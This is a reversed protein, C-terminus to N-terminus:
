QNRMKRVTESVLGSFVLCWVIFAVWWFVIAMWAVAPQEFIHALRESAVSYMGLPFVAGWYHPNYDLPIRNKVHRWYGLTLLMPIWWTATAWFVLTAGLLFPEMRALIPMEPASFILGCGALTSIAVAGMNIWYPPALDAALFDFFMYRYFILAIIWLYLMGGFLWANLAVFLLLDRGEGALPALLTGLVCVSQSAVVAVLWSGNLGKQIPPKEPHIILATFVSYVLVVTLLVCAFWLPWALWPWGMVILSASGLVGSGAAATFFGPAVAHNTFDNAMAAPFRLLRLITFICLALYFVAAAVFLVTALVPYGRLEASISVIATTMVLAFYAPPLTRIFANLNQDSSNVRFPKQTEQKGNMTEITHFDHPM